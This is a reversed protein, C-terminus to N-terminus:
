REEKTRENGLPFSFFLDIIGTEPMGHKFQTNRIILYRSLNLFFHTYNELCLWCWLITGLDWHAPSSVSCMLLLFTDMIIHKGAAVRMLQPSKWTSAETSGPSPTSPPLEAKSM